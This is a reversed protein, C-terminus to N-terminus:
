PFTGAKHFYMASLFDHFIYILSEKYYEMQLPLNKCKMFQYGCPVITYLKGYSNRNTRIESISGALNSGFRKGFSISEPSKLLHTTSTSIKLYQFLFLCFLISCSLESEWKKISKRAISERKYSHWMKLEKCNLAKCRIRLRRLSSYVIM